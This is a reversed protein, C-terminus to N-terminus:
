INGLIVQSMRDESTWEERSVPADDAGLFAALLVHLSNAAFYHFADSVAKERTKGLGVFSEIITRGPAFELLVNLQVAVGTEHQNEQSISANAKVSRNPFAICDGHPVVEVGHARFLELLSANLQSMPLPGGQTVRRHLQGRRRCPDRFPVTVSVAQNRM